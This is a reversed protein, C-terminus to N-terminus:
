FFDHAAICTKNKKEKGLREDLVLWFNGIDWYDAFISKFIQKVYHPVQLTLFFDNAASHM